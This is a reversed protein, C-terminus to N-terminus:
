GQPSPAPYAPPMMLAATSPRRTARAMMSPLAGASYFQKKARQPRVSVGQFPLHGGHGLVLVGSVRILVLAHHALPHLLSEILLLVGSRGRGPFAACRRRGGHPVGGLFQGLADMFQAPDDGLLHAASQAVGGTLHAARQAVRRPFHAFVGGPLLLVAMRLLGGLPRPVRQGGPHVLRPRVEGVAQPVAQADEAAGQRDDARHGGAEHRQRREEAESKEKIHDDEDRQHEQQADGGSESEGSAPGEALGGAAPPHPPIQGGHAAVARRRQLAHGFGDAPRHVKDLFVQVAHDALAPQGVGKQIVVVPHEEDAGGLVAVQLPPLLGGGPGLGSRGARVLKRLQHLLAGVEIKQQTLM